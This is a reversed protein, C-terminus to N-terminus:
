LLTLPPKVIRARKCNAKQITKEKVNISKPYARKHPVSTFLCIPAPQRTVPRYGLSFKSSRCKRVRTLYTNFLALWDCSGTCLM